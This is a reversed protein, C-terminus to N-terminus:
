QLLHKTLRKCYKHILLCITTTIVLILLVKLNVNISIDVLYLGLIIIIPQHTIFITYSSDALKKVWPFDRGEMIISMMSFISFSIMLSSVFEFIDGVVGDPFYKWLFVFIITIFVLTKYKDILVGDKSTYYYMIGVIFYPLYKFINETAFVFLHVDYLDLRWGIRILIPYSLLALLMISLNILINNRKLVDSIFPWFYAALMSYLVLVSLFWLHGLWLGRGLYDIWGVTAPSDTLLFSMPINIIIGVFLLPIGLRRLRLRVYSSRSKRVLILSTFFGAIIFFAPMRFSHIVDIIYGAYPVKEPSSIKWAYDISFIALTHLVVGLLMLLGRLLDMYYLRSLKIDSM